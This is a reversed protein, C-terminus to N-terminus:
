GLRGGAYRMRAGRNDDSATYYVYVMGDSAFEPSLAIGLLGGEGQPEVGDVTGVRRVDGGPTVRVIRANDRETVLAGGGPLFALGWPADLNRAVVGQVRPRADAAATSSPQPEAPESPTPTATASPSAAPTAPSSAGTGAPTSAAPSPPADADTGEDGSCATAFLVASLVAAARARRM